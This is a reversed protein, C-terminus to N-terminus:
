DNIQVHRRDNVRLVARGSEYYIWCRKTYGNDYTLYVNKGESKCDLTYTGKSVSINRVNEGWKGCDFTRHEFTGNKYFRYTWNGDQGVTLSINPCSSNYSGSENYSYSGNMVLRIPIRIYSELGDTVQINEDNFVLVWNASSSWIAGASPSSLSVRGPEYAGTLPLFIKEGNPGFVDYGDGVWNWSCMEKLEKLQSVSPLNQGFQNIAQEFTYYGAENNKKWKTGSPLGLDVYTQASVLLTLLCMVYIIYLRKM